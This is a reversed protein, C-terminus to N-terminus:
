KRRRKRSRSRRWRKEEEEKEAKKGTSLKKAKEEAKKAVEIEKLISLKASKCSAYFKCLKEAM